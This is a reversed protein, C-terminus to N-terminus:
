GLGVWVVDKENELLSVTPQSFLLQLCVLPDLNVMLFDPKSRPGRDSFFCVKLLKWRWSLVGMFGIAEGEGVILLHVNFFLRSLVM